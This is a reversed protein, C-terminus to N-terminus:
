IYHRRQPFAGKANPATGWSYIKAAARAMSKAGYPMRGIVLTNVLYEGRALEADQM